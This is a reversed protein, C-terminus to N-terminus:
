KGELGKRLETSFPPPLANIIERKAREIEALDQLSLAKERDNLRAESIKAKVLKESFPPQLADVVERNEWASEVFMDFNHALEWLSISGDPNDCFECFGPKLNGVFERKWKQKASQEKRQRFYRKIRNVIGM